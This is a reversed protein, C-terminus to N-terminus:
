NNRNKVDINLLEGWYEDTELLLKDDFGSAPYFTMEGFYITQNVFYLDVRVFPINQSLVSAIRFMEEIYQPKPLTFDKAANKGRINLRLLNWNQDFFYFKPEGINRDICVMVNDARGNFCFFKYDTLGGKNLETNDSLYQEAIIRPKVNKYPWERGPYYFNLRLCKEIKKKILGIDAHSKDNVVFVGGSDHTCKLVFRNPLMDFNIDDFNDWIGLTPVVHSIGIIGAVEKKVEAKDVLSTYEPKRDYLKLWQLKEQFTKPEKWNIKYKFRFYYMLSLYLKDSFILRQVKELLYLFYLNRKEILYSLSHM